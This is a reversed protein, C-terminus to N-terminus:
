KTAHGLRSITTAACWCTVRSHHADRPRSSSNVECNTTRSALAPSGSAAARRKSTGSSVEIRSTENSTIMGVFGLNLAEDYAQRAVLPEGSEALLQAMNALTQAEAPLNGIERHIALAAEYVAQAEEFNGGDRHVTALNNLTIGELLRNGAERQLALADNMTAVAAAVDGQDRLVHALNILVYAIAGREKLGSYIDLARDLM